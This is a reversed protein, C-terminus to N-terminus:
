KIQHTTMLDDDDDDCKYLDNKNINWDFANWFSFHFCIYIVKKEIKTGYKSYIYKHGITQIGVCNYYNNM